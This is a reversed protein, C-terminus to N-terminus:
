RFVLHKDFKLHFMDIRLIFTKFLSATDANEAGHLGEILKTM